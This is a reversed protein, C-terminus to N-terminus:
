RSIAALRAENSQRSTVEERHRGADDHTAEKRGHKWSEARRKQEVFEDSGTDSERKGGRPDDNM